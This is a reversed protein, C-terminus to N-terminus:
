PCTNGWSALVRTIDAFNVSGDHDADGAPGSTGWNALVSTIDAFNVVGDGDADGECPPPPPAAFTFDGVLMNHDTAASDGALVGLASLESANLTASDFVFARLMSLSGGANYTLFDLRGPTFSGSGTSTGRWTTVDEGILHAPVADTMNPGSPNTVLDLPTRSGVLNWDGIIIAPAQRYPEFAAGLLGARLNSLTTVLGSMQSIRQADDSNGIYGCCKPHISFVVVSDATGAAPLDIVACATASNPSPMALLPSRSAIVCDNNKHVNWNAGDEMPDVGQILSKVQAASSNYEEQFCYIDANMADVLRLLKPQQSANLLGTQETNVSAIRFQTEVSRAAQRRIPTVAANSMVYNANAALTDSSSFNITIPSGVVVGFTSLDVTLEFEDSAYSPATSYGVASWTVTLAPNNDRWLSKNRMDITLARGGPMGIQVRLTGDGAAGSQLNLTTGIDFRLFLRTGRNTAYLSRVDFAGSSDGAPDTAILDSPTWETLIGDLRPEAARSVGCAGLCGVISVAWVLRNIFSM